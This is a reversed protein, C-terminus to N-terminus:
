QIALEINFGHQKRIKAHLKTLVEESMKNSSLTVGFDDNTRMLVQVLEKEIDDDINNM